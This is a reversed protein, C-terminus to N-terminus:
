DRRVDIEGQVKCAEAQSMPLSFDNVSLQGASRGRAERKVCDRVMEESINERVQTPVASVASVRIGPGGLESGRRDGPSNALKAM